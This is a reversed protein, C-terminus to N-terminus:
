DLKSGFTVLTPFKWPLPSMIRGNEKQEVRIQVQQRMLKKRQPKSAVICQLSNSCINQSLSDCGHPVWEYENAISLTAPSNLPKDWCEGYFIRLDQFLCSLAGKPYTRACCDAPRTASNCRIVAGVDKCFIIQANEVHALPQWSEICPSVPLQRMQKRMGCIAENLDYGFIYENIKYKSGTTRSFCVDEGDAMELWMEKVIDGFLIEDNVVVGDAKDVLLMQSQRLASESSSTTNTSNERAYDVEAPEFQGDIKKRKFSYKNWKAYRLSAFLLTSVASVLWAREVSQDWLICPTARASAIIGEFNSRRTRKAVVNVQQFKRDKKKGGSAGISSGLFGIRSFFSLDKGSSREVSEELAKVNSLGSSMSIVDVATTDSDITGITVVPAACWGVYVKGKRFSPELQGNFRLGSTGETEKRIGFERNVRAPTIQRGQTELFHWRRSEPPKLPILATDFGVLILGDATLIERDIAALELLLCFDVELGETAPNNNYNLSPLLTICAYSFLNTWCYSETRTPSFSKIKPLGFDLSVPKLAFLGEVGQPRGRLVSLTWGLALKVELALKKYRSSIEWRLEGAKLYGKLTVYKADQVILEQVLYLDAGEASIRDIECLDKKSGRSEMSVSNPLGKDNELEHCQRCIRIIWNLIEVGFAPYVDSLFESVSRAVYCHDKPHNSRSITLIEKIAGDCNQYTQLGEWVIDGTYEVFGLSKSSLLQMIYDESGAQAADYLPTRGNNDIANIDAGRSLLEQIVNTSGARAAHHLPTKRDKDVTNIDAGRHLLMWIVDKSGARAADHLPTRGDKDITNPDVEASRQFLKRIIHESNALAASHLLTRGNKDMANVDARRSLIEKMLNELYAQAADHLPTRGDNEVAKIDAERSLLEQTLGKSCSRAADNLSTRGDSNMINVDVKESEQLFKQNAFKTSARIPYQFPTRGDDIANINVGSGHHDQIIGKSHTAIVNAVGHLFSLSAPQPPYKCLPIRCAPFIQFPMGHLSRQEGRSISNVDEQARIYGRVTDEASPRAANHFIKQGSDSSTEVESDYPADNQLLNQPDRIYRFAM